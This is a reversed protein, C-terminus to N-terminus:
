APPPYSSRQSLAVGRGFAAERALHLFVELPAVGKRAQLVEGVRRHVHWWRPALFRAYGRDVRALAGWAAGETRFHRTWASLDDAIRTAVGGERLAEIRGGRSLAAALDPAQDANCWGASTRPARAWAVRTAPAFYNQPHLFRGDWAELYRRAGRALAREGQPVLPVLAAVVGPRALLAHVAERTGPLLTEGPALEIEM